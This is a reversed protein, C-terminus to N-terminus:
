RPLAGEISMSVSQLLLSTALLLLATALKFRCAFCGCREFEDHWLLMGPHPQIKKQGLRKRFQRARPDLLQDAGSENTEIAPGRSSGVKHWGAALNLHIWGGRLPDLGPRFRNRQLNEVFVVVQDDDVLCGAHCNM